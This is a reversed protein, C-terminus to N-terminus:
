RKAKGIGIAGLVGLLVVAGLALLVIGNANFFSAFGMSEGEGSTQNTTMNVNSLDIIGVVVDDLTNALISVSLIILVISTIMTKSDM